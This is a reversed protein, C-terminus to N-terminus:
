TRVSPTNWAEGLEKSREKARSVAHILAQQFQHSDLTELAAMTTGGPSTVKKRLEAPAEGTELLMHAAGVLTQLTLQRVIQQDLGQTIGAQELAEVMYYIYAPGSGSLGTVTDMHQEEVTVTSGIADFTRRAEELDKEGAHRGPCLATASRGVMSSTNPMARIVTTGPALREEIWSTSLGAVVSIVRQGSHIASGWQRLADAMDKPKVALILNRANRITEVKEEEPCRIQFRQILSQLRDRNQRNIVAIEGPAAKGERIIGSIIAEAVSGAGIFCYLTNNEM